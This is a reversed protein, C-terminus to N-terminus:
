TQVRVSHKTTPLTFHSYFNDPTNCHGDARVAPYESAIRGPRSRKRSDSFQDSYPSKVFIGLQLVFMALGRLYILGVRTNYRTILRGLINRCIIGIILTRLFMSSSQNRMTHILSNRVIIAAILNNQKSSTVTGRIEHRVVAKPCTYASLGLKTMREALDVTENGFFYRPDFLYTQDLLEKRLMFASGDFAEVKQSIDFQGHDHALYGINTYLNESRRIKVMGISNIVDSTRIMIKPVLVVVDRSRTSFDKVLYSLADEDLITDANIILILDGNAYQVGRVNGGPYGENENPVYSYLHKSKGLSSVYDHVEHSQANDVVIVEFDQFSQRELSAFLHKLHHIDNYSVCVVSVLVTAFPM